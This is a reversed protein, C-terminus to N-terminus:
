IIRVFSWYPFSMFIIRVVVNSILFSLCLSVTNTIVRFHTENWVQSVEMDGALSGAVLMCGMISRQFNLERNKAWLWVTVWIMVAWLWVSCKWPVTIAADLLDRHRSYEMSTSMFLAPLECVRRCLAPVVQITYVELMECEWVNSKGSM